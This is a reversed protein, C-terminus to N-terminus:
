SDFCKFDDKTGDRYALDGLALVRVPINRAEADKALGLALEGTAKAMKEEGNKCYAIDGAALLIGIPDPESAAKQASAAGLQAILLILTATVTALLREM